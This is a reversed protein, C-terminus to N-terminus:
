EETISLHTMSTTQAHKLAIARCLDPFHHYLLRKQIGLSLAVNQMSTTRRCELFKCLRREVLARNLPRPKNVKRSHIMSTRPDAPRTFTVAFPPSLFDMPDIRLCYCLNLLDILRIRLGDNCWGWVTNKQKGIAHAFRAAKSEFAREIIASIGVVVIENSPAIEEDPQQSAVLRGVTEAIWLDWEGVAETNRTPNSLSAGCRYCHGPRSRPSLQFLHRTCRPCSSRLPLKHKACVTVAAISWLLPEYLTGLTALQESFCEPCWAKHQRLLERRSFVHLWKRLTLFSLDRRMTLQELYTVWEAATEGTGNIARFHGGFSRSLVRAGGNIM